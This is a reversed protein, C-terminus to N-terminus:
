AEEGRRLLMLTVDDSNPQDGLYAAVATLIGERIEPLPDNRKAALIRKAPEIGLFADGDTTAEPIGDSVIMLLDGPALTVEGTELILDEIMAVAMGTPGLKEMTGNKRLLLPPEHGANVYSLSGTEGDLEGIFLTIFQESSFSRFLQNHLHPALEGLDGGIEALLGISVTAASMALAAPTGKGSVDGLAILVKGNPRRLCHYLDGGVARCMVQHADIEYGAPVELTEPLMSRQIQAAVQLENELSLNRLKVAVANATATLVELDAHTYQVSADATDVYLIGRVRENDFLPAAMASRLSLAMISQQGGYDPDKHPDAVLVSQRQRIVQGVITSSLHLPAGDDNRRTWRATTEISTAEGRDKMLVVRDARVCQAVFRCAASEVEESNQGSALLEFLQSSQAMIRDRAANSYGEAPNYSMLSSVRGADVFETAIPATVGARRLVAGGFSVTAAATAEIEESGVRQGDVETGNTSGLDRVFIRDGNIRIVAHYKSVRPMPIRVFNDSARGVTHDGDALHYPLSRGEFSLEFKM